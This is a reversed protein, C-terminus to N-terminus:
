SVAQLVKTHNINTYTSEVDLIILLWKDPSALAKIRVVSDYTNKIYSNYDM